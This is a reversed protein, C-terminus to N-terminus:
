NHKLHAVVKFTYTPNTGGLTWKLKIANSLKKNAEYDTENKWQTGTADGVQTFALLKEEKGTIPDYNWVEVDLTPNTGGKATVDLIWVASKAWGVGFPTSEGTVTEVKDHLTLIDGKLIERINKAM